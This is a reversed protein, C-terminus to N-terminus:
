KTVVVLAAEVLISVLILMGAEVRVNIIGAMVIIIVMVEGVEIGVGTAEIVVVGVAILTEELV